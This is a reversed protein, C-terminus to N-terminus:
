GHCVMAEEENTLYGADTLGPISPESPRSGTAIVAKAFRLTQGNGAITDPGTFCANGLFEDVGLDRFRQASDHASLHARLRRVREMVAPFHVRM